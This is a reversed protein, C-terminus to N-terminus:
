RYLNPTQTHTNSICCCGGAASPTDANCVSRLSRKYELSSWLECPVVGFGKIIGFPLCNWFKTSNPTSRYFISRQDIKHYSGLCITVISKNMFVVCLVLFEHVFWSLTGLFWVNVSFCILVSFFLDCHLRVCIVMIESVKRLSEAMNSNTCFCRRWKSKGPKAGFLMHDQM